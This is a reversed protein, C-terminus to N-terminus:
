GFTFEITCADTHLFTFLTEIIDSSESNDSIESIVLFCSLSTRSFGTFESFNLSGSGYFALGFGSRFSVFSSVIESVYDEPIWSWGVPWGCKKVSIDKVLRGGIGLVGFTFSELGLFM